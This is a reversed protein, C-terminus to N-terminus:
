SKTTRPMQEHITCELDPFAAVAAQAMAAHQDKSLPGPAGTVYAIYDPALLSSAMEWNNFQEYFRRATAKNQETSM